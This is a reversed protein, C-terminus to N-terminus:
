IKKCFIQQSRTTGSKDSPGFVPIHSKELFDSIGLSLPEEPGVVVLHIKEKEVYDKISQFDKIGIPVCTAKELKKIGPNGPIAYVHEVIPSQHIKWCLAHERGGSGLVLIRM